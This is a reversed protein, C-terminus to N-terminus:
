LQKKHKRAAQLIGTSFDNWNIQTSDYKVMNTINEDAQKLAM